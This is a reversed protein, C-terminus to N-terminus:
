FPITDNGSPKPTNNREAKPEPKAFPIINEPIIESIYHKVDKDDTWERNSIRGEVYIPTGKPLEALKKATEAFTVIRHWTVEESFSDDAEKKYRNTALSVQCVPMGKKTTTLKPEAIHGLLIVKNVCKPM